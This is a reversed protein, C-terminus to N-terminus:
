LLPELTFRLCDRHEAMGVDVRDEIDAVPVPDVEQDHLIQLAIGGALLAVRTQTPTSEVARFALISKKAYRAAVLSRGTIPPSGAVMSIHHAELPRPNNKAESKRTDRVERPGSIRRTWAM